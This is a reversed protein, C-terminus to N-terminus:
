PILLSLETNERLLNWAECGSYLVSEPLPTNKPEESSGKLISWIRRLRASSASALYHQGCGKHVAM